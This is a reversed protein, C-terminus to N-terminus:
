QINLEHNVSDKRSILNFDSSFLSNGEPSSIGCVTNVISTAGNRLSCKADGQSIKYHASEENSRLDKVKKMWKGVGLGLRTIM